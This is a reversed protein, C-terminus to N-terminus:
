RPRWQEPGAPQSVCRPGPVQGRGTNMQAAKHAKDGGTGEEQGRSGGGGGAAKNTNGVHTDRPGAGM